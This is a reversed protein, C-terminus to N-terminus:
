LLASSQNLDLLCSEGNGIHTDLDELLVVSERPPARKLDGGVVTKKLPEPGATFHPTHHNLAMSLHSTKYYCTLIVVPLVM